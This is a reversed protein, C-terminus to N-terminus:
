SNYYFDRIGRFVQAAISNDQKIPYLKKCEKIWAFVEFPAFLNDSNEGVRPSQYIGGVILAEQVVKACNKTLLHYRNNTTYNSWWSKIKDQNVIDDPLELIEDAPRGESKVDDEYSQVGAANKKRKLELEEQPWFSIHISDSLSMSLHGVNTGHFRWLYVKIM